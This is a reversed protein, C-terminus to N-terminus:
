WFQFSHTWRTSYAEGFYEYRCFIDVTEDISNGQSYNHEIAELISKEAATVVKVTKGTKREILDIAVVNFADAFAVTLIDNQLDIPIFKNHVASDYDVLDLIDSDILTNLVDVVQTKNESALTGTLVEPNVFGLEVLMEGLLKGQRKQERLALNLQIESILGADILKQGLPKNKKPNDSV